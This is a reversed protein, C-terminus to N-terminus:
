GLGLRGLVKNLLLVGAVVLVLVLLQELMRSGWSTTAATWM